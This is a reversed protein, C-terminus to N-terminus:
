LGGEHHYSYVREGCEPDAYFTGRFAHDVRTNSRHLYLSYLREMSAIRYVSFMESKQLHYELFGKIVKKGRGRPVFRLNGTSGVPEIMTRVEDLLEICRPGDTGGRCNGWIIWELFFSSDVRYLYGDWETEVFVSPDTTRFDFKETSCTQAAACPSLSFAGFFNVPNFNGGLM